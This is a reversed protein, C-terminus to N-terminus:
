RDEAKELRIVISPYEQQIEASRRTLAKYDDTRTYTRYWLAGGIVSALASVFDLSPSRFLVIMLTPVILVLGVIIM